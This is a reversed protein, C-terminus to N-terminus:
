GIHERDLKRVLVLAYGALLLGGAASSIGLGLIVPDGSSYYDHAAWGVFMESGMLALLIFVLHFAKLSM